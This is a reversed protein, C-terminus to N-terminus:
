DVGLERRLARKAERNRRYEPTWYNMRSDLYEEIWAPRFVAISVGVTKAMAHVHDADWPCVCIMERPLGAYPLLEPTTSVLGAYVPLKAIGDIVSLIKAEVLILKGGPWVLADVEPRFPRAWGIARAGVADVLGAPLPGVPVNMRVPVGEWHEMLYESLLRTERQQTVNGV